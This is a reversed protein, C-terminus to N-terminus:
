RLSILEFLEFIRVQSTLFPYRPLAQFDQSELDPLYGEDLSSLSAATVTSSCNFSNNLLFAEDSDSATKASTCLYFRLIKHKTAEYLDAVTTECHCPRMNFDLLSFQFSDAKGRVSIGDPFFLDTAFVLLEAMNTNRKVRIHRTGGGTRSRVQKFRQEGADCEAELTVWGVEVRRDCKVANQNGANKLNVALNDNESGSLQGRKRKSAATAIKARLNDLLKEKKTRNGDSSKSHCMEKVAVRDGYCPIYESLDSDLM